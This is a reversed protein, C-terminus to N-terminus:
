KNLLKNSEDVQELGNGGFALGNNIILIKKNNM